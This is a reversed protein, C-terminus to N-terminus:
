RVQCGWQEAEKSSIGYVDKLQKEDFNLYNESLLRLVHKKAAPLVLGKFEHNSESELQAVSKLLLPLDQVLAQRAIAKLLNYAPMDKVEYRLLLSHLNLFQGELLYAYAMLEFDALQVAPRLPNLEEEELLSILSAAPEGRLVLLKREEVLTNPEKAQM